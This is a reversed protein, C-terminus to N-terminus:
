AFKFYSLSVPAEYVASRVKVRDHVFESKPLFEAAYGGHSHPDFDARPGAAINNFLSSIDVPFSPYLTEDPTPLVFDQRHRHFM